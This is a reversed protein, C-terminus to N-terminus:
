SPASIRVEIPFGPGVAGRVATLVELTLRMRNEFSGGYEDTRENLYPSM